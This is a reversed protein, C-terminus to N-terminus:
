GLAIAFAIAKESTEKLLNTKTQKKTENGSTDVIVIVDDDVSTELEVLESIKKSAM